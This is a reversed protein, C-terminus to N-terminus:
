CNSSSRCCAGSLSSHGPFDEWILPRSDWKGACSTSTRARATRFLGVVYANALITGVMVCVFAADLERVSATQSVHGQGLALGSYCAVFIGTLVRGRM